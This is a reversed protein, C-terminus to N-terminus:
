SDVTYYGTNPTRGMATNAGNIIVMNCNTLVSVAETSEWINGGLNTWATVNTFGRIIPNAGTGYAGFTIPNGASGSNKVTITGYFTDGKQFLIQDGAKFTLANVNALTKWALITTLGSNSDNGSNSVYYTTAFSLISCQVILISLVTKKTFIQYFLKM